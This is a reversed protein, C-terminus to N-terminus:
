RKIAVPAAMRRKKMMNMYLTKHEEAINEWILRQKFLEVNSKYADYKRDMKLLAKSFEEQNRKVSIGLGQSSFEKFFGLDSSIFPLGHGLGDFMVGSGSSVTYPLILIDASRLLLSIELDNLYGRGLDIVNSNEFGFKTTENNYHNKSSNVVIKWGNPLNIKNLLDWGKTKTVFGLALAIRCDGPISFHQRADRKSVSDRILPESGHYVVLTGPIRKSLYRSFVIGYRNPGIKRINLLHSARYSLLHEWYQKLMRTYIVWKSDKGSVDLPVVLNMWERFTYESHFTTLIPLDCKDYFTDINTRIKKPNLPDLRRGYLGHEYQVHVLDPKAENVFDMLIDSNLDNNPSIGVYDGKGKENCVVDVMVGRKRLAATLKATYRGVGGLMPPYETSIMLVHLSDTDMIQQTM